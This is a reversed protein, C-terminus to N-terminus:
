RYLIKDVTGAAPEGTPGLVFTRTGSISTGSNSVSIISGQFNVAEVRIMLDNVGTGGGLKDGTIILEQGPVYNRGGDYVAVSYNGTLEQGIVFRASGNFPAGNIIRFWKWKGTVNKYTSSDGGTTFQNGGPSISSDPIDVWNFPDSSDDLSGQITIRGTYDSSHFFQFTHTSLATNVYPNADIISSINYSPDSDGLANPSVYTFERVELSPQPEGQLNGFVELTAFAGYQSDVYLPTSSLIRTADESVSREQKIISYQYFGPELDRMEERSLVVYARGKEQQSVGDDILIFDKEILLKQTDKAVLSFVLFSGEVSKPKQDCNKVQIDIRADAGRYIKLNRNYVKRYRESVWPELSNTFVDIKNSYLYFSNHIMTVKHARKTNISAFLLFGVPFNEM